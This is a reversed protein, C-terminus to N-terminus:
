DTRQLPGPYFGAIAWATVQRCRANCPNPLVVDFSIVDSRIRYDVTVAGRVSDSTVLNMSITDSDVPEYTEDQVLVGDEDVLGFRGDETFYYSYPAESAGRCRDGKPVADQTPFWRSPSWVLLETSLEALGAQKLARVFRECSTVRQWTGVIRGPSEKGPSVSVDGSRPAAVEGDNSRCASVLLATTVLAVLSRAMVGRM